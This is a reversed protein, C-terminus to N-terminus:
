AVSTGGTTPFRVQTGAALDPACRAGAPKPGAPSSTVPAPPASAPSAAPPAAGSGASNDREDGGCAALALSAILAALTMPIFSRRVATVGLSFVSSAPGM